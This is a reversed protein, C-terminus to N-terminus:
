PRDVDRVGISREGDLVLALLDAIRTVAATLQAITHNLQEAYRAADEPHISM